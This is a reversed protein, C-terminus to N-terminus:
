AGEGVSDTEFMHQKMHHCILVEMQREAWNQGWELDLDPAAIGRFRVKKIKLKIDHCKSEM